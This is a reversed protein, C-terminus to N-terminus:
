ILLRNQMAGDIENLGLETLSLEGMHLVTRQQNAAPSRAACPFGPPFPTPIRFLEVTRCLLRLHPFASGQLVPAARAACVCYVLIWKSVITNRSVNLIRLRPRIRTKENHFM